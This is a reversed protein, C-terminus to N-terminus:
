KKLWKISKRGGGPLLAFVVYVGEFLSSVDVSECNSSATLLRGNVDLVEIGALPQQSQVYLQEGVQEVRYNQESSVSREVSSSNNSLSIWALKCTTNKKSKLTLRQKGASLPVNIVKTEWKDLSGTAPLEAEVVKVGDAYVEIYPNFLFEESAMRINLPYTGESAVDILYDVSRAAGFTGLQLKFPSEPDANLEVTVYASKVYNSAAIKDETSYYHTLDFSSMNVYIEGLETLTGAPINTSKYKLLPYYPYADAGRAKFWAYRAVNPSLEMAEVKRVMEDRQITRAQAPDKTLNDWACYETMWVQKGYRTAIKDIYSMMADATIMYCHLALYDVKSGEPLLSFFEDYWMVPDHYPADPSYNLAPAVLELNFDRAIAELKPWLAAAQTPTMNAQAKFNPENFGLLYKVGPNATLYERLATENFNGNWIMPCFEMAKGPGSVEKVTNNPLSAWNYFWSVGPTLALIEEEYTFSNESVGRKESRKQGLLDTSATFALLFAALSCVIIRKM